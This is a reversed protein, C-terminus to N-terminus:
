ENDPNQDCELEHNSTCRGLMGIPADPHLPLGCYECVEDPDEVDEGCDVCERDITEKM